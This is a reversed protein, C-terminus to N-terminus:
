ISEPTATGVSLRPTLQVEAVFDQVRALPLKAAPAATSDPREPTQGSYLELGGQSALNSRIAAKRASQVAPLLLGIIVAIVCVVVLLEVLTFGLRNSQRM